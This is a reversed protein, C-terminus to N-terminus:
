GNVLAFYVFGILNFFIAAVIANWWTKQLLLFYVVFDFVIIFLFPYTFDIETDHYLLTLFPGEALALLFGVQLPKWKLKYYLPWALLGKIIFFSIIIWILPM